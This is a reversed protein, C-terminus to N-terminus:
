LQVQSGNSSLIVEFYILSVNKQRTQIGLHGLGTDSIFTLLGMATQLPVSVSWAKPSLDDQSSCIM